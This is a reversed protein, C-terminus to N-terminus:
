ASPHRKATEARIMTLLAQAHPLNANDSKLHNSVEQFLASLQADSKKALDAQTIKFMSEEESDAGGRIPRTLSSFDARM